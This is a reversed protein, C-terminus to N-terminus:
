RSGQPSITRPRGRDAAAVGTRGEPRGLGAKKWCKQSPAQPVTRTQVGAHGEMSRSGGGGTGRHTTADGYAADGDDGRAGGGCVRSRSGLDFRFPRTGERACGAERSSARAVVRVFDAACAPNAKRGGERLQRKSRMETVAAVSADVEFVDAGSLCKGGRPPDFKAHAPGEVLQDVSAVLESLEPEAELSACLAFSQAVLAGLQGRPPYSSPEVWVAFRGVFARGVGREVDRGPALERAELPAYGTSLAGQGGPALRM